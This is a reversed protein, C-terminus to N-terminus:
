RSGSNTRQHIWSKLRGIVFLDTKEIAEVTAGAIHPTILVNENQSAYSILPSNQFQIEDSVVDGAFGALRGTKLVDILALEDIIEGRSTNVLLAGRRMSQLTERGVMMRTSDDLPVHISVIDSKSFLEILDECRAVSTPIASDDVDLVLLDAGFAEAYRGVIQGLRGYGVIGVTKGSIENGRFAHQDWNGKSVSDLAAPLKRLLALLLAWTHEATSTVTRLFDVEGRLHFLRVGHEEAAATDIHNLGTTPSVVAIPGPSGGLLTAPVWRKLRVLLVDFENARAEFDAQSMTQTELSTFEAILALGKDSFNEPEPCLTKIENLKQVM